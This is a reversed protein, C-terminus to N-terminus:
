YAYYKSIEYMEANDVVLSGVCVPPPLSEAAKHEMNFEVPIGCLLAEIDAPTEENDMRFVQDIEHCVKTLTNKKFQFSKSYGVAIIDDITLDFEESINACRLVIGGAINESNHSQIFGAGKIPVDVIAEHLRKAYKLLTYKCTKGLLGMCLSAVYQSICTVENKRTQVLTNSEFLVNQAQKNAEHYYKTLKQRCTINTFSPMKSLMEISREFNIERGHKGCSLNFCALLIADRQCGRFSKCKLRTTGMTSTTAWVKTKVLYALEKTMKVIDNDEDTFLGDIAVICAILEYDRQLSKSLTTCQQSFSQYRSLKSSGTIVIGNNTTLVLGSSSGAPDCEDTRSYATSYVMELDGVTGCDTCVEGETLMIVNKSGCAKCESM